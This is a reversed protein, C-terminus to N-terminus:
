AQGAPRHPHPPRTLAPTTPPHTRSRALSPPLTAGGCRRWSEVLRWEVAVGGVHGGEGWWWWGWWWWWWWWWGWVSVGAGSDLLTGVLARSGLYTSQFRVGEEDAPLCPLPHWEGIEQTGVTEVEEASLVGQRLAEQVACLTPPHTPLHPTTTGARATRAAGM